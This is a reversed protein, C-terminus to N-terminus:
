EAGFNHKLTSTLEPDNRKDVAAAVREALQTHFRSAALASIASAALSTPEASIAALLFEAAEPLPSAGLNILLARRLELSILPEQWFEKLIEIADPDRSQALASAAELRVAEDAAKLFRAIFAVAGSTGLNLLSAFCHGLVDPESDGTLLKLRLLMAGEPRGLQNIAMASDIRVLKDPDALGDGLYTLIEIDALPCDTLALACTGRLTAASDARGGWAPELQIHSIGRVYVDSDRCGLDRLAKAIANKALCQPDSKVPDVFFREFAAILDPILEELKLEAAIVAATSALYNNREQLAKGLQERKAAPDGASRLARLAELKRDFAQKTM